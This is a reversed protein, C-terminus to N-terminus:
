IQTKCKPLVPCTNLVRRPWLAWSPCHGRCYLCKDSFIASYWQMLYSILLADTFRRCMLNKCSFSPLVLTLAWHICSVFSWFCGLHGYCFFMQSIKVMIFILKQVTNDSPIYHPNMISFGFYFCDFCHFRAPEGGPLFNLIDGDAPLTIRTVKQYERIYYQSM